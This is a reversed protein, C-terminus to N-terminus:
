NRCHFHLTAKKAGKRVSKRCEDRDSRCEIYLLSDIKMELKLSSPVTDRSGQKSPVSNGSPTSNKDDSLEQSHDDPQSDDSVVGKSEIRIGKSKNNLSGQTKSSCSKDHSLEQSHDDPQSYVDKSERVEVTDVNVPELGCKTDEYDIDSSINHKELKSLVAFKNKLPLDNGNLVSESFRSNERKTKKYSNRISITSNIM